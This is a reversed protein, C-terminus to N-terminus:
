DLLRSVRGSNILEASANAAIHDFESPEKGDTLRQKTAFHRNLAWAVLDALQLGPLETDPANVMRNSWFKDFEFPLPNAYIAEGSGVSNVLVVKASNRERLKENLTVICVELLSKKQDTKFGLNKTDELFQARGVWIAFVDQVFPLLKDYSELLCKARTNESSKRWEKKKGYIEAAHLDSACVGESKIQNMLLKHAQDMKTHDNSRIRVAFFMILDQVAVDPIFNHNQPGGDDIYVADLGSEIARKIDNLQNM